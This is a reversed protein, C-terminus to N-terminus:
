LGSFFEVLVLKRQRTPEDTLIAVATSEAKLTPTAMDTITRHFNNERSFIIIVIFIIFVILFRVSKTM